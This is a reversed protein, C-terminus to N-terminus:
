NARRRRAMMVIGGLVIAGPLVVIPLWFVMQSQASTLIVPASRTEKPRVSVLDEEEALWSIVNLFFDRNGQAGIFQNAALSASGLVVLRARGPKRDGPAATGAEAKGAAPEPAPAAPVEVTAVAAVSLPGKRDPPDLQVEGRQLAARDTEGWSQASTRALGQVVIGKSPSKAPEVSRTLPFFTMLNTIERTIPHSEYQSVVPVEPGVGFIRGIPNTEIVLDDGVEFGYRALYKKLGDAQFPVLLFFAKGGRAVYADLAELEPPLLDTRPGPVLVIAADDPVKPDRALTLDKVEYNAKEIQEKAQSLGARETNAVDLEGHGKLVYIVRKGDRTVKVLASTLKEEEADLIKESKTEGKGARELVVTGYSEVAYRRALGPARDPDEMRYTFKGGAYSAYQKLLDEAPRKGPTDSRFFAIAEVPLRLTQLVKITQPSVSHRRNETLDWRAHHRMSLANALVVVGLALLAVLAAGAGYRASRRGALTGLERANLAVSVLLLLGAAILLAWRLRELWPVFLFVAGACALAVLAAPGAWRKVLSM